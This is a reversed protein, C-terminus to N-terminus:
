HLTQLYHGSISDVFVSYNSSGISEGWIVRWAPTPFRGTFELMFQVPLDPHKKLYPASEKVAAQYAQDSDVKLMQYIFPRSQGTPGSWPEDRGAMAGERIIGPLNVVSFTYTLAKRLQASVFTAKWAVCKGGICPIDRLNLNAVQVPQADASWTKAM